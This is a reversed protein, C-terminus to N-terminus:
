VKNDSAMPGHGAWLLARIQVNHQAAAGLLQRLTSGPDGPVLEFDLQMWWGVLYIYHGQQTATRLMRTIEAFSNLGDVQAEVRNGTRAPHNGTTRTFWKPANTSTVIM